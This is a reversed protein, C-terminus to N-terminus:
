KLLKLKVMYPQHDSYNFNTPIGKVELIEIQPSTLFFDILTTFTTKPDYTNTLKRNTPFKPDFVWKWNAPLYNQEINIQSYSSDKVPSIADFQFNPPCQNWDAGVIVYNGKAQEDLLFKKLYNMEGQKLSGGKDYASNHSNIVVLEKNHRTPYRQVSMCRDLNFIREPWPFKGPYQFRTADTPQFKSYSALGSYVQGIVNWFELVPIPVRGANFNVAFVGSYGKLTNFLQAYQNRHYSRDSNVDVEQLLVFDAPNEAIVKQIGAWYTDSFEQTPRIMKNGSTFFYNDDYFFNSEKGLGSYGINWSLLTITDSTIQKKSQGDITLKIQEEPQYDTITGFILTGIFYVLFLAIPALVIKLLRKM